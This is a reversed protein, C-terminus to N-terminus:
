PLLEFAKCHRPRILSFDRRDTTLIRSIRLREATAVVAADVFGIRAAAYRNLLELTRQLDQLTLHELTMEGNVFSHILKQEAELGLHTALLYAAEPLVAISVILEAQSRKLFGVVRAHWDDDQDAMAYLPGTDVLISPM